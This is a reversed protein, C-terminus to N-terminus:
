PKLSNSTLFEELVIQTKKSFKKSLKKLSPISLKRLDISDLDVAYRGLSKFYLLDLFAKEKTAIFFKGLREFGFYLRPNLKNYVFNIKESDFSQTRIPNAAEIVNRTIQTTVQYYSLATMFSIYSPTQILNSLYFLDEQSLSPFQYQSVYINNKFRIFIGRKVYRSCLVRASAKTIGLTGAVSETTFYFQNSNNLKPLNM